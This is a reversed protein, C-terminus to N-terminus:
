AGTRIGFWCCGSPFRHNCAIIQDYSGGKKPLSSPLQAARHNRTAFSGQSLLFGHGVDNADVYFGAIQGSPNNARAWTFVAGPVDITTYTPEKPAALSVGLPLNLAVLFTNGTAMDKRHNDEHNAGKPNSTVNLQYLVSPARDAVARLRLHRSVLEFVQICTFNKKWANM